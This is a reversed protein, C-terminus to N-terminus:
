VKVGDNGEKAEPPTKLPFKIVLIICVVCFAASFVQFVAPQLGAIPGLLSGVRDAILCLGLVTNKISSPFIQGVIIYNFNFCSSIGFKALSMFISVLASNDSVEMLLMFVGSIAYSVGFPLKIGLKSIALGSSLVAVIEVVGNLLANLYINGAYHQINMSIGYYIYGCTFFLTMSMITRALTLKEGLLQVIEACNTAAKDTEASSAVLTFNEPLPVRNVKAIYKLNEIAEQTRNKSLLFKPPEVIQAEFVFFLASWLCVFGCMARWPIGTWMLLAVIVEGVAFAAGLFTGFFKVERSHSSDYVFAYVPTGSGSVMFGCLASLVVTAYYDGLVIILVICVINGVQGVSMVVLRGYNDSITSFIFSGTLSGTIFALSICTAAFDRCALDFESIYNFWEKDYVREVPGECADDSNECKIPNGSSDTCGWVTPFVLFLPISFVYVMYSVTCIFSVACVLFHYSGRGILEYAEEITLKQAEESEKM